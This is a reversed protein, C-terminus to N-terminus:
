FDISESKLHYGVMETFTPLVHSFEETSWEHSAMSSDIDLAKSKDVMECYQNFNQLYFDNRLATGSNSSLELFFNGSFQYTVFM